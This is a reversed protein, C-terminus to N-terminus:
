DFVGGGGGPEGVGGAGFSLEAARRSAEAQRREARARMAPPLPHERARAGREGKRRFVVYEAPPYRWEIVTEARPLPPPLWGAPLAPPQAAAAGQRRRRTAGTGAGGDRRGAEVSWRLVRELVPATEERFQACFDRVRGLVKRQLAPGHSRAFPGDRYAGAAEVLARLRAEAAGCESSLDAVEALATRVTFDLLRPNDISPLAHQQQQQPPPHNDPDAEAAAAGPREVALRAWAEARERQWRAEELLRRADTEISVRSDLVRKLRPATFEAYLSSAAGPEDEADATASLLRQIEARQWPRGTDRALGRFHDPISRPARRAPSPSATTITATAGGASALAVATAAAARDAATAAAEKQGAAAAAAAAPEPQPPPPPAARGKGGRGRGPRSRRPIYGPPSDDADANAEAGGNGGSSRSTPGAAAAVVRSQRRQQQPSQVAPRASPAGAVARRWREITTALPPM